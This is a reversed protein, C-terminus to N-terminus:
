QGGYRVEIVGTSHFSTNREFRRAKSRRRKRGPWRTPSLEAELPADVAVAGRAKTFDEGRTIAPNLELAQEWSHIREDM